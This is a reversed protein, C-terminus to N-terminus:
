LAAVAFWFAGFVAVPVGRVTSFRSMYVQTCSVTQSVDCFSRYNPDHLLHYHTYAPAASAGLGALACVLSIIAARKTMFTRTTASAPAGTLRRLFLLIASWRSTFM